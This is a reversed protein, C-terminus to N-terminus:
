SLVELVNRAFGATQPLLHRATMGAGMANARRTM